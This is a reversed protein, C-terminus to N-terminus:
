GPTNVGQEVARTVDARVGDGPKVVTVNAAAAEGGVVVFRVKPHAKAAAEAAAVPAKGVAVVVDCSRQILSNVFPTANAATQEGTVPVFNVRARTAKSADQMGAWVPAGDTGETVGKDGTLLCADVNKYQRARPDPPGPKDDEDLVSVLIAAVAVAVAAGAAIRVRRRHVRALATLRAFRLRYRAYRGQKDQGERAAKAAQAQRVQKVQKM